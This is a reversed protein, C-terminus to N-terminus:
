RCSPFKVLNNEKCYIESTKGNYWGMDNKFNRRIFGSVSNYFKITEPKLGNLWLRGPYFNKGDSYSRTFEIVEVKFIGNERLDSLFIKDLKLPLIEKTLIGVDRYKTLDSMEQKTLVPIEPSPPKWFESIFYGEKQEIFRMLDYEDEPSTFFNIQM